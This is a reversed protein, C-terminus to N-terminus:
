CHYAVASMLPRSISFTCRSWRTAVMRISSPRRATRHSRSRFLTTYPFLFSGFDKIALPPPEQASLEGTSFLPVSAAILAACISKKDFIM